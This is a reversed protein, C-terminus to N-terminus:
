CNKHCWNLTASTNCKPSFFHHSIMLETYNIVPTLIRSESDNLVCLSSTSHTTDPNRLSTTAASVKKWFWSISQVILKILVKLQRTSKTSFFLEKKWHNGNGQFFPDWKSVSFFFFNKVKSYSRKRICILWRSYYINDCMSATQSLHYHIFLPRGLFTTTQQSSLPTSQWFCSM